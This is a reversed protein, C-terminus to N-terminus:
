DSKNITLDKNYSIFYIMGEEDEVKMKKKGVCGGILGNRIM